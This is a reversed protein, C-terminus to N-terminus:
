YEKNALRRLVLNLKKEIFNFPKIDKATYIIAMNEPVFFDLPVDVMNNESMRYVEKIRRKILNRDVARKFNRKSVTVLVKTTKTATANESFKILFPYLYISSDSKFLEEITKKSKLKQTKPFKFRTVGANSRNVSM